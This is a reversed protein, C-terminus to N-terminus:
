CLSVDGFFCQYLLGEGLTTLLNKSVTVKPSVVHLSVVKVMPWHVRVSPLDRHWIESRLFMALSLGLVIRINFM